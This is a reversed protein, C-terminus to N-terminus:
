QESVDVHWVLPVARGVQTGLQALTAGKTQSAAPQTSHESLDHTLLAVRQSGHRANSPLEMDQLALAYLMFEDDICDIECVIEGDSTIM